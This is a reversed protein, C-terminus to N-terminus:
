LQDPLFTGIAGTHDKSASIWVSGKSFNSVFLAKTLTVLYASRQFPWIFLVCSVFMHKSYSPTIMLVVCMIVCVCVCVTETIIVLLHDSLSILVWLQELTPCESGSQWGWLLENIPICISRSIKTKLSFANLRRYYFMSIQSPTVRLSAWFLSM